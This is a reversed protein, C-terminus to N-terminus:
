KKFQEYFEVTIPSGVENGEDDVASYTESRVREGVPRFGAWALARDVDGGSGWVGGSKTVLRRNFRPHSDWIVLSKRLADGLYVVLLLGIPVGLIYIVGPQALIDNLVDNFFEATFDVLGFDM